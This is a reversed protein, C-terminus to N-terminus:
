KTLVLYALVIIAAVLIGVLTFVLANGKPPTSSTFPPTSPNQMRMSMAAAALQPASPPKGVQFQPRSPPKSPSRQPGNSPTKGGPAPQTSTRQISPLSPV